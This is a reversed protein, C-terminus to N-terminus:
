PLPACQAAFVHALAAAPAGAARAAREVCRAVRGREEVGCRAGAVVEAADPAWPMSVEFSRPAPPPQLPPPPTGGGGEAAGGSCRWATAGVGLGTLRAVGGVAAGVFATGGGGAALATAAWPRAGGEGGANPAPAPAVM